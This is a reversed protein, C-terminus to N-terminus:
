SISEKIDRSIWYVLLAFVIFLLYSYLLKKGLFREGQLPSPELTDIEKYVQALEKANTASFSKAGSEKSLKELFAKDYDGDKGIGITYLKIGHKLVEQMAQKPSIKGSNHKGDSLLVIVKSKAEGQLLTQTAKAIAEGIATSQGAVGVDLMKLIYSLSTLDYTLPSASYAFTGFVIVGMNDDYRKSIFDLALAENVEFRTKFQADEDFGSQAMSGSADIALVLDRGKKMNYEKADFVFPNALSIVLLNFIVVKMWMEWNSLNKPLPMWHLHPFYRQKVNEKCLFFCVVLPLLFLFSTSEFSFNMEIGEGKCIYNNQIIIVYFCFM